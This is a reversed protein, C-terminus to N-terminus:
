ATVKAGIAADLLAPDIWPQGDKYYAEFFYKEPEDAKRIQGVIGFHAAEMALREPDTGVNFIRIVGKKFNSTSLCYSSTGNESYFVTSLCEMGATQALEWCNSFIELANRFGFDM